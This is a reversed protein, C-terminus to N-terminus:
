YPVVIDILMGNPKGKKIKFHGGIASIREHMTKLGLSKTNRITLEHDFGKGNDQINVKIENSTKQVTIKAASAKAHKVINNFAEQITRFLHIEAKADLLQDIEVIEKSIFLNTSREVRGIMDYVTSTIGFKELQFPHLDRSISRVEELTATIMRQNDLTTEQTTSMQKKLLLLSQGIGDHLDRAIRKREEEQAFILAEAFARKDNRDKKMKNFRIGLFALFALFMGGGIIYNRQKEVKENKSALQLIDNEQQLIHREKEVVQFKTEAETIAKKTDLDHEREELENLAELQELARTPQGLQKYTLYLENNAATQLDVVKHVKAMKLAAQAYSIASQEQGLNRYAKSLFIKNSIIYPIAELEESLLVAAKGLKLAERFNRKTLELDVIIGMANLTMGKDNIKKAITLSQNASNLSKDIFLRASDQYVSSNSSVTDALKQYNTAMEHYIEAQNGYGYVLGRDEGIMEAWDIAKSLYAQAKDLQKWKYYVWAINMYPQFVFQSDKEAKWVEIARLFYNIATENNGNKIDLAGLKVDVHAAKSKRGEQQFIAKGQKFLRESETPDGYLTYADGLNILAKAYLVKEEHNQSFEISKEALLLCTDKNTYCYQMSLTIMSDIQQYNPDVMKMARAFNAPTAKLHIPADNDQQSYVNITFFLFLFAYRM